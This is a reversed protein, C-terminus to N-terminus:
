SGQQKILGNRHAYVLLELRDSVGLKNYVSTLHHRITTESICLRTAIQKNKLGQGILQIVQRERDSLQNMHEAEPNIVSHRRALSKTNLLYAMMSREIWVEGAHVKKIAKILAQPTQSQAVLGLVGNQVAQSCTQFDDTSNMLIIRTQNCVELLRPIVDLGLNGATNLQLLIIDPKQRAVMELAITSDGADGVVKMGPECEIILRLGARILAYFELIFIRIPKEFTESM